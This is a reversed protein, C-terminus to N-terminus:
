NSKEAQETNGAEGKAAKEERRTQLAANLYFLFAEKLAKEDSLFRALNGGYNERLLEYFVTVFRTVKEHKAAGPKYQPDALRELRDFIAQSTAAQVSELDFPGSKRRLRDFALSVPDLLSNRKFSSGRLAHEAALQAMVKLRASVSHEDAM